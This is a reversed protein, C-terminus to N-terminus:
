RGACYPCQFDSFEVITIKATAPGLVPAGAVPIKVAPDLLQHAQPQQVHAWQSSDIAAIIAADPKGSKAASIATAALNTSYACGPDNIRCEALKMGCGCSCDHQRLIKLVSAKAKPSLGSFDVGPLTATSKWDQALVLSVAFISLGALQPLRLYSTRM